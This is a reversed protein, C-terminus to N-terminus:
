ELEFRILFQRMSEVPMGLRTAPEFRAQKFAENTVDDLLSYGSTKVIETKEPFGNKAIWVRILVHGEMAEERAKEPYPISVQSLLQAQELSGSASSELNQAKLPLNNQAHPQNQKLSRHMKNKLVTPPKTSAKTLASARVNVLTVQVAGTHTVQFFDTQNLFIIVGLVLVHLVVSYILGNKVIKLNQM